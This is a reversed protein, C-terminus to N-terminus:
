VEDEQLWRFSLIIFRRNANRELIDSDGIKQDPMRQVVAECWIRSEVEGTSPNIVDGYSRITFTDSRASLIPGLSQLIDAQTLYGPFATAQHNGNFQNHSIGVPSSQGTIQSGPINDNIGSADIARQLLGARALGSGQHTELPRNIFDALSGFPSGEEYIQNVIAEALLGVEDEDLVRYGHWFSEVNGGGYSNGMPNILRSFVAFEGDSFTDFQGSNAGSTHYLPIRLDKSSSLVSKWAETSTSNVNFAGKVAMHSSRSYFTNSNVSTNLINDRTVTNGGATFRIRHNPLLKNGNIIDEWDDENINQPIGSFYYSDWLQQNVVHSLDWIHHRFAPFSSWFQRDLHALRSPVFSNGVIYTSDTVYRGLNAHQFAGISHIDSRPIDFLVVRGSGNAGTSGGGWYGSFRNDDSIINPLPESGMHGYMVEGEHDGSYLSLLYFNDGLGDWGQKGAIARINSDVLLRNQASPENAGRLWMGWTLVISQNGNDNVGDSLASDLYFSTAETVGQFKTADTVDLFFQRNRRGSEIGDPLDEDLPYQVWIHGPRSSDIELEVLTDLSDAKLREVEDATLGFGSPPNSVEPLGTVVGESTAEWADWLPLQLFGQSESFAEDAPGTNLPAQGLADIENREVNDFLSYLRTEGPEIDTMPLRMSFDRFPEERYKSALVERLSFEVTENDGVTIRVVPSFQWRLDTYLETGGVTQAPELRVNYPNYYGALLKVLLVPKYVINSEGSATSTEVEQFRVGLSMQLRALVPYVPSNRHYSEGRNNSPPNMYPFVVENTYVGGNPNTPDPMGERLSGSDQVRDKLNYFDRLIGWNPFKATYQEGARFEDPNVFYYTRDVENFYRNFVAESALALSLDGRFGGWRSDTLLGMSNPTLDHWHSNLAQTEMDDFGLALGIDRYHLVRKLAENTFGAGAFGTMISPNASPPLAFALRESAAVDGGIIDPLERLQIRAKVGEDGVWWSYNGVRQGTGNLIGVKPAVVSGLPTQTDGDSLNDRGILTGAALLYVGDNSAEQGFDAIIEDEPTYLVGSSLEQAGEDGNASGSVLWKKFHVRSPNLHNGEVPLGANLPPVPKLENFNAPPESIWVGTWYPHLSNNGYVINARATVRQDPGASRQLEGLAVQLGLLANQRAVNESKAIKTGSIEVQTMTSLSIMLLMIFSMLLLSVILAFGHRNDAKVYANCIPKINM